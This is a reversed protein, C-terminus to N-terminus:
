VLAKIFQKSTIFIQDGNIGLGELFESKDMFSDFTVTFYFPQHNDINNNKLDSKLKKIGEKDKVKPEPKSEKMDTQIQKSEGFNFDNVLSEVINIDYDTLGAFEINIDPLIEALLEFDTEGQVNKNNLFINQEKETKLDLEIQEVKVDYDKAKSGDYNFILDMAELRKHGGILNGTTKNWCIGGLFGVTKFNKKLAEVVKPNKKRPNYAAIHILSRKIVVTESQKLKPKLIKEKSKKETTM